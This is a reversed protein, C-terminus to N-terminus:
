LNSTQETTAPPDTTEQEAVKTCSIGLKPILTKEYIAISDNSPNKGTSDNCIYTMMVNTNGNEDVSSSLECNSCHYPYVQQCDFSGTKLDDYSDDIQICSALVPLTADTVTADGGLATEKANSDSTSSDDDKDDDNGCGAILFFSAILIIFLKM